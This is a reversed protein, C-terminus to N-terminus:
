HLHDTQPERFPRPMGAPIAGWKGDKNFYATDHGAPHPYGTLISKVEPDIRTFLRIVGSMSACNGTLMVVAGARAEPSYKISHVFCKLEDVWVAEEGNTPDLIKEKNM